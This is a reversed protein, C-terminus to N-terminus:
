YVKYKWKLPRQTILMTPNNTHQYSMAYAELQALPWYCDGKPFNSDIGWYYPIGDSGKEIRSVVMAHAGNTGPYYYRYIDLFEVNGCIIVGRNQHLMNQLHMHDFYYWDSPLDYKQLLQMMILIHSNNPAQIIKREIPDYWPVHNSALEKHIRESFSNDQQNDLQIINEVSELWCSKGVQQDAISSTNTFGKFSIDM